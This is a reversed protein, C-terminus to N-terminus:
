AGAPQFSAGPKDGDGAAKGVAFAFCEALAGPIFDVGGGAKGNGADDGLCGIAGGPTVTSEGVVGDGVTSM